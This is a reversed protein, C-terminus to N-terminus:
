LKICTSGPVVVIKNQKMIARAARMKFCACVSYLESSVHDTWTLQAPHLTKEVSVGSAALGQPAEEMIRRIVLVLRLRPPILPCFCTWAAGTSPHSRMATGEETLCHLHGVVLM